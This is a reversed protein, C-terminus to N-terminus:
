GSVIGIELATDFTIPLQNQQENKLEFLINKVRFCPEIPNNNIILICFFIRCYNIIIYKLKQFCHNRLLRHQLM